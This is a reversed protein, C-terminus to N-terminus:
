AQMWRSRPDFLQRPLSGRGKDSEVQEGDPGAFKQAQGLRITTFFERSQELTDLREMESMGHDRVCDFIRAPRAGSHDPELASVSRMDSVLLPLPPM